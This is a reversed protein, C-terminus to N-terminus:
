PAQEAARRQMSEGMAILSAGLAQFETGCRIRESELDEPTMTRTLRLVEDELDIEPSRGYVKGIYHIAIMTGADRMQENSQPSGALTLGVTACRLDAENGSIDQATAAAAFSLACAAAIAALTLKAM